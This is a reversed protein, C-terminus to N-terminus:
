KLIKNEDITLYLTMDSGMRIKEASPLPSQNFVVANLSDAYTRVSGDFVMRRINLSHDHVADVAAVRKLGSLSPVSTTYDSESLGLVLDIPTECEVERGPRAESGRIEQALVNNTAMDSVYKLRGLLLGRSLIEAKAQRLSCGVVNPVAVKKPNVANIVLLIRRGKKVKAGCLPEQRYVVGKEMRRVFVSDAVEVRMGSRAAVESAEAVTMNAFDPVDIEKNHKTLIGLLISATLVVALVFAVAGLLNKVIWNIKM